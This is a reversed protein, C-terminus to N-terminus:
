RELFSEYTLAQDLYISVQNTFAQAEFATVGQKRDTDRMKVLTESIRAMATASPTESDDISQVGREGLFANVKDTMRNKPVPRAKAQIALANFRGVLHAYKAQRQDFTDKQTGGHVYALFEMVETNSTTLGELLAKDYHPALTTACGASAFVLSIVILRYWALAKIPM